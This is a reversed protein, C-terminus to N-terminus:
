TVVIILWVTDSGMALGTNTFFQLYKKTNSLATISMTCCPANVAAKSANGKVLPPLTVATSSSKTTGNGHTMVSLLGGCNTGNPLHLDTSNKHDKNSTAPIVLPGTAFSKTRTMPQGTAPYM